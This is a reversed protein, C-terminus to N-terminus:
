CTCTEVPSRHCLGALSVESPHDVRRAVSHLRGSARLYTVPVVSGVACDDNLHGRWGRTGVLGILLIRVFTECKM